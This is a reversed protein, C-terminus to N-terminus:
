MSHSEPSDDIEEIYESDVYEKVKVYILVVLSLILCHIILMVCLVVQIGFATLLM